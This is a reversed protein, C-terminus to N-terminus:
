KVKKAGGLWMVQVQDEVRKFEPDGTVVMANKFKATAAAFCDAYSIGGKAKFIAAQRALAWDVEVVDVNLGILETIIEDTRETSNTRAVCYWVEGLNIMSVMLRADGDAARHFLRLVDEYYGEDKQLFKVLAFSDLVYVNPM